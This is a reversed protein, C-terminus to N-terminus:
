GAASAAPGAAWEQGSDALGVAWEQGSDVPGAASDNTWSLALVTM